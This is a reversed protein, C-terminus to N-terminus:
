IKQPISSKPRTKYSVLFLSFKSANIFQYIQALAIFSAIAIMVNVVIITKALTTFKVFYTAITNIVLHVCDLHCLKLLTQQPLPAISLPPTTMITPTTYISFTHKLHNKILHHHYRYPRKTLKPGIPQIPTTSPTIIM